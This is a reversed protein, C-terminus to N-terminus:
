KNLYLHLSTFTHKLLSFQVESLSFISEHVGKSGFFSIRFCVYCTSSSLSTSIRWNGPWGEM